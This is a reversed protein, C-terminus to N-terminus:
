SGTSRDDSRRLTMTEGEPVQVDGAQDAIPGPVQRVHRRRDGGAQGRDAAQTEDSVRAGFPRLDTFGDAIDGYYDGTEWTGDAVAEVREPLVPGLQLPRGDAVRRPLEDVPRLRLRDVGIDAAKAAEGPAPSDGGSAIM